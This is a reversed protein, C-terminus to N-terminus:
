RIEEYLKRGQITEERSYNGCRHTSNGFTVTFLTLNLFSYNGRFSNASIRYSSCDDTFIIGLECSRFTHTINNKAPYDRPSRLSLKQSQVDFALKQPVRHYHFVPNVGM